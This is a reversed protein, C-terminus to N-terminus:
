VLWKAILVMYTETGQFTTSGASGANTETELCTLVNIGLTPAVMLEAKLSASFAAGNGPCTARGVTGSGVTTSNYGIVILPTSGASNGYPIQEFEAAAVEEPLCNFITLSNATDNNSPRLTNTAYVWSATGSGAKLYTPVRNYANSVGWKRSQGYNRNCTVAGPTADIFISGLFTGRNANITYTSAGNRGTMSVTNVWIGNLRSIQTTGAGTGRSGAGAGSAAWAPGTALTLVGSNMFAFVDYITNAAHQAALTLVLENFTQAEFVTGSYVPVTNGMFQTYYIAASSLVDSAIVPTGSTPTLYGLPPPVAGTSSTSGNVATWVTTAANGTTTAVYLINNAYDWVTSAPQVGQIGQFGAVHGNPNGNYAQFNAVTSYDSTWVPDATWIQVDNEDTVVVKYTAPQLWIDGSYGEADIIIPHSNAITLLYNSYTNLPTSSGTVYFYIRGNALPAGTTPNAFFQQNPSVFRNTM